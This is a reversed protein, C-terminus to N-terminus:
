LKFGDVILIMQSNTLYILKINPGDVLHAKYNEDKLILRDM